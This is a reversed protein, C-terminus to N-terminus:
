YDLLIEVGTLEDFAQLIRQHKKETAVYEIEVKIVGDERKLDVEDPSIGNAILVRHVHALSKSEATVELRIIHLQNSVEIHRELSRLFTLTIIMLITAALALFYDGFGIVLGLAAVFWLTAASTLGTVSVRSRIITGAGLFGIGTVVQAAIRGPDAMKGGNQAVQVSLIMILCSGLCMLINTRMGAPKGKIERELGIAGGILAAFLLRLAYHGYSETMFDMALYDPGPTNTDLILRSRGVTSADCAFVHYM